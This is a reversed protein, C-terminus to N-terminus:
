RAMKNGSNSAPHEKFFRVIIQRFQNETMKDATQVSVIKDKLSFSDRIELELEVKAEGPGMLLIGDANLLHDVIEQYYARLQSKQKRDNSKEDNVDQPGYPTTGRSGATRHETRHLKSEVHNVYSLGDEIRVILARSHDVWIGTYKHTRKNM